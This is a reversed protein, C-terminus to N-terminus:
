ETLGIKVRFYLSPATAPISATIKAFGPALAESSFTTGPPPETSWSETTLTPSYELVGTLGRAAADSRQPYSVLIQAGSRESQPLLPYGAAAFMSAQGPLGGFAYEMLNSIGDGDPDGNESPDASGQIWSTFSELLPLSFNITQQTGGDFNRVLTGTLSPANPLTNWTANVVSTTSAALGARRCSWASASQSECITGVGSVTTPPSPLNLALTLNHANAAGTNELTVVVQGAKMRRLPAPSSTQMGVATAAPYTRKLHYGHNEMLQDVETLYAPIFAMYNRSINAPLGGWGQPDRGSATGVICPVGNEMIFSPAGSDGGQYDCDDTNGGNHDYDFYLFRTTDFGPDNALNIFGNVSMKGARVFSGFVQMQRGLYNAESALNLVSFPTIGTSAPVKSSLTCLMLDTVLDESNIVPVQSEIGFLHQQGDAGLFAIQWDAGLPYHSAYVFHRPSVLAMQRTWDTPHAPWGIGRFLAASPAFGPNLDPYPQAPIIPPGPFDLLRNHQTITFGRVDLAHSKSM